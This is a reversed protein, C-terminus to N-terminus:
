TSMGRERVQEFSDQNLSSYLNDIIELAMLTEADQDLWGGEEPFHRQEDRFWSRLGLWIMLYPHPNKLSKEAVLKKV